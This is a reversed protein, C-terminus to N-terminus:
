LNMPVEMVLIESKELTEFQLSDTEWVGMGDRKNLVNGNISLSGELVFVYIGNGQKKLQYSTKFGSDFSGLHFWADQYIWVGEDEANPSLIQQLQNHRNSKPFHLQDYRPKVDRKNPYVWIQLFNVLKETNRNYESHTIGSGASMVQVDNEKIVQVNGMSDKHELDGSLPISIIEMNDHPHTGFGKGGSVIDDNLVRLVGFNMREPNYYQAFSFTHHTDLWGHDAHGRTSARHIVTNKMIIHNEIPLHNFGIDKSQNNLNNKESKLIGMSNFLATGLLSKRLFDKRNM